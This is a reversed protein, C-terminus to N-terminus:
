QLPVDGMSVSSLHGPAMHKTDKPLPLLPVWSPHRQPLPGSKTVYSAEPAPAVSPDFRQHEVDSYPALARLGTNQEVEIM